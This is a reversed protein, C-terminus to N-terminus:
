PNGNLSLDLDEVTTELFPKRVFGSGANYVAAVLKHNPLEKQIIGFAEAVSEASGTDTSIGIAHGGSQKIEAVIDSYSEPKRALLVVPYAKAFRLATSRGTGSGVGAVIAFFSKSAM